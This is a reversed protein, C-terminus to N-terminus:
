TESRKSQTERTMENAEKTTSRNPARRHKTGEYPSRKLYGILNGLMGSVLRCSAVMSRYTDGNIYRQDYSVTLQARVEGCSGKTIFLFQIFEANSGREFGEAINSMVSVCARRIQNVLGYDKSFTEQRTLEYVRHTLERARKYVNLDEFSELSSGKAGQDGNM